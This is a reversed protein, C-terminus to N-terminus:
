VAAELRSINAGRIANLNRGIKDVPWNWWAV